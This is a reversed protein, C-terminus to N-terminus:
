SLSSNLCMEGLCRALMIMRIQGLASTPFVGQSEIKTVNIVSARPIRAQDTEFMERFQLATM